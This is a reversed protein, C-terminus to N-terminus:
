EDLGERVRILTDIVFVLQAYSVFRIDTPWVSDPTEIRVNASFSEAPATPATADFVAVTAGDEDASEALFEDIEADTSTYVARGSAEVTVGDKTYRQKLERTLM